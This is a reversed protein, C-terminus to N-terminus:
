PLLAAPATCSTGTRGGEKGGQGRGGKGRRRQGWRADTLFRMIRAERRVSRNKIASIKSKDYVKLVVGIGGLKPCTAAYVVSDRSTPPWPSWPPPAASTVPPSSSPRHAPAAPAPLLAPLETLHSSRRAPTPPRRPVREHASARARACPPSGWVGPPASAAM